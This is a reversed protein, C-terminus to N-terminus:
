KDTRPPVSNEASSDLSFHYDPTLDLSLHGNWEKPIQTVLSQEYGFLLGTSTPSARLTLGLLSSQTVTAKDKVIEKTSLVGVGLVITHRTGDRGVWSCSTAALSLVILAILPLIPPPNM